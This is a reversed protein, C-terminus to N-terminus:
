RDYFFIEDIFLWGKEGKGPHWAPIVPLNQAEIKYYKYPSSKIKLHVVDSKIQDKNDKRYAPVNQKTVLQFQKNDNSGFVTVSTPPFVYQPIQLGYCFSIKTLAIPQKYFFLASFANERYGIWNPDKLNTAAARQGNIVTLDGQGPYSPNSKSLLVCSDPTAGKEFLSFTVMDSAYWGDKIAITKLDTSGAVTFPKKYVLGNVSDPISGDISYKITTGKIYHKLTIQEDPAIIHSQNVLLPPSLKIIESSAPSSYFKIHPYKKQWQQMMETPIKTDAIYVEKLSKFSNLYSVMQVTVNTNSLSLVELNRLKSVTSIGKDTIKTGNLILKELAEFKAVHMLDEDTVPMDTLNLHVLQQRVSELLKIHDSKYASALFMSAKLAPSSYYLPQVSMFHTNVKSIQSADAHSFHYNKEKRQAFHIDFLSKINEKAGYESAKKSFSAGSNIWGILIDKEQETIQPKGDPPMHQEDDIPLLLSQIMLSSDAKGAIFARGSEGGKIFSLTDTMLLGGKSKEQNHCSYCKKKLIPDVIAAFLTSNSDIVANDINDSEPILFGKGHTIEAGKHGAFLLLGVNLFIILNTIAISKQYVSSLIYVGFAFGFGTNRHLFLESAQYSDPEHSLLSGTIVTIFATFCAVSLIFKLIRSAEGDSKFSSRLFHLLVFVMFIGIPLHLLVPHCRGVIHIFEPVKIHSDFTLLIVSLIALGFNAMGLVNSLRTMM